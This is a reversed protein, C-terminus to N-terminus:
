DQSPRLIEPLKCLVQQVPELYGKHSSGSEKGCSQLKLLRCPLISTKETKRKKNPLFAVLAKKDSAAEAGGLPRQMRRLSLFGFARCHKM